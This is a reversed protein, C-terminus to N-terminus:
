RVMRLTVPARRLNWKPSAVAKGTSIELMARNGHCSPFGISFGSALTTATVVLIAASLLSKGLM